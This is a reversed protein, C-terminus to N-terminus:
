IKDQVGRVTQRKRQKWDVIINLLRCAELVLTNQRWM